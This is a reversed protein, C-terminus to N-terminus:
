FLLSRHFLALIPPLTGVATVRKLSRLWRFDAGTALLFTIEHVGGAVGGFTAPRTVNIGLDAFLSRGLFLGRLNHGSTFRRPLCEPPRKNVVFSVLFVFTFGCVAVSGPLFTM